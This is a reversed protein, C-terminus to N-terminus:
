AMKNDKKITERLIVAHAASVHLLTNRTVVTESTHMRNTKNDVHTCQLNVNMPLCMTRGSTANVGDTPGIRITIWYVSPANKQLTCRDCRSASLEAGDLASNLSNM